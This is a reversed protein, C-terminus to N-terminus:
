INEKREERLRGGELRYVTDARRLTSLRHAVMLVTCTGMMADIADQVQRESVNDLASTAEDLLIIKPDRLLARAISIRQRQGGSLNSGNELIETDLGKPLHEVLDKLGVRQIVEMVKETSVYKQGFILNELLSGRFLVTNQPVVAISRRYATKDLNDINVGDILIEGSQVQYLGPILNLLTSKGEGSAGIFAASHGAPLRFSIDQLVPERGEEYGFSVHRFEIEGRMPEPLLVTGNRDMDKAWLVENVSILSDYGQTIMPLADLIRQVNSIILDFISQFLVLTGVNILGAATLFATFSLSILRLGQFGGFTFNNVGVTELDYSISAQQAGRVHSLITRYETKELGHARTLSEMELMEKIAASVEENQRRMKTRSDMLSGGFHRLLIAASPVLVIYFFLMAPFTKLAVAIIFLIDECLILIETFRDYLLTEIYPVDSVLKSLLVGSEANHHFRMSLGQLKQVLAMKLGAEVARAFRRYLRVDLGFCILNVILALASALLNMLVPRVFFAGTETVINIIRSVFVPLMLAALHRLLLVSIALLLFGRHKGALHWIVDLSKHTKKPDDEQYFASIEDTLDFSGSKGLYVLYRNVGKQYRFIYHDAYQALLNESIQLSIRDWRPETESESTEPIQFVDAREGKASIELQRSLFGKRSVRIESCGQNLLRLILEECILMVVRDEAGDAAKKMAGAAFDLAAPIESSDRVCVHKEM